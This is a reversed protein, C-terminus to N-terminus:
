CHGVRQANLHQFCYLDFCTGDRGADSDTTSWSPEWAGSRIQWILVELILVLSDTSQCDTM